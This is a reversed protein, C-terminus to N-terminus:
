CFKKLALWGRKGNKKRWNKYKERYLGLLKMLILLYKFVAAFNDKTENQFDELNKELSNTKKTLFDIKQNLDIKMSRIEVEISTLRKETVNQGEILLDFKGNMDELVVGLYRDKVPTDKKLAKKM